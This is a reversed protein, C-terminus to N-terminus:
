GGSSGGFEMWFVSLYFSLRDTRFGDVGASISILTKVTLTYQSIRGWCFLVEGWNLTVSGNLKLKIEVLSFRVKLVFLHILVVPQLWSLHPILLILSGVTNIQNCYFSNVHKTPSERGYVQSGLFSRITFPTQNLKQTQKQPLHSTLQHPPRPSTGCGCHNHHNTLECQNQVLVLFRFLDPALICFDSNGDEKDWDRVKVQVKPEPCFWVFQVKTFQSKWLKRINIHRCTVIVDM